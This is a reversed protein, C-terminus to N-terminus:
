QVRGNCGTWRSTQYKNTECADLSLMEKGASIM